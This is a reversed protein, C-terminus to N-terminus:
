LPSFHFMSELLPLRGSELSLIFAFQFSFNSFLPSKAPGSVQKQWIPPNTIFFTNAAIYPGHSMAHCAKVCPFPTQPNLSLKSSLESATTSRSAKGPFTNTKDLPAQFIGSNGSICFRKKSFLRLLFPPVFHPKTLYTREQSVTFSHASDVRIPVNLNPIVKLWSIEFPSLAELKSPHTTNLIIFTIVIPHSLLKCGALVHSAAHKTPPCPSSRPCSQPLRSANPRLM